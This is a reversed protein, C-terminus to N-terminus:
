KVWFVATKEFFADIQGCDAPTSSYRIAGMNTCRFQLREWTATNQSKTVPLNLISPIIARQPWLTKIVVIAKSVIAITTVKIWYGVPSRIPGNQALPVASLAGATRRLGCAPYVQAADCNAM